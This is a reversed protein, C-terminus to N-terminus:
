KRLNFGDIFGEKYIKYTYRKFVLFLIKEYLNLETFYIKM